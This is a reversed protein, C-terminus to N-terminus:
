RIALDTKADFLHVNDPDFVLYKDEKPHIGQNPDTVALVSQNGVMIYIIETAGLEQIMDVRGKMYMTQNNKDPINTLLQISEPRIGLILESGDALSDIPSHLRPPLPLLHNLTRIMPQGNSRELKGNFFNIRIDGMFGAVFSNIPENFIVRPTDYQQLVGMDMLAIRDSLTMAEAQDHTVYVTTAKSEEHLKRLEFRMMLRLRADLNSLPEDMLFVIPQRIIARGLAVRQRQGGSLEKPKRDLLKEIGLLKATDEVQQQLNTVREKKARLPFAINDFVSLHPYIAYNQFVMACDRDQPPILSVEDGGIWIEGSTVPLLGAIMNLTTSKGCGSPGLLTVFEGDHITLSFDKVAPVEGFYKTLNILKIDAM